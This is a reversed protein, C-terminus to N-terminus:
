FSNKLVYVFTFQYIMKKKADNILHTIKTNGPISIHTCLIVNPIETASSKCQCYIFCLFTATRRNAGSKRENPKKERNTVLRRKACEVYNTIGFVCKALRVPRCIKKGRRENEKEKQDRPIFSNRKSNTMSFNLLYIFLKNKFHNLRSSIEYCFAFFM